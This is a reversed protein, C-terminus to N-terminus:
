EAHPIVAVRRNGDWVELDKGDLFKKAKQLAEADDACDLVEPPTSIHADRDLFYLRYSPM